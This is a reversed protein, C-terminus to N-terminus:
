KPKDTHGPVDARNPLTANPKALNPTAGWTDCTKSYNDGTGGCVIGSGNKRLCGYVGSDNPPFYAGGAGCSSKVADPGHGKISITKAHASPSLALAGALVVPSVLICIKMSLGGEPHM